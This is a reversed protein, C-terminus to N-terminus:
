DIHVTRVALLLPHRAAQFSALTHIGPGVYAFTFPFRTSVEHRVQYQRMLPLSVERDIAVYLMSSEMHRRSHAFRGLKGWLSEARFMAHTYLPGAPLPARLCSVDLQSCSRTLLCAFRCCTRVRGAQYASCDAPSVSLSLRQLKVLKGMNEIADVLHLLNHLKIDSENCSMALEVRCIAEAVRARMGALRDRCQVKCWLESCVNIISLMAAEVESPLSALRIAYAGFPGALLFMTATKAKKGPMTLRLLRGAIAGPLGTAITELAVRFDALYATDPGFVYVGRETDVEVVAHGRTRLGQLYKIIVDKIVGGITHMADYNLGRTPKFSLLEYIPCSLCGEEGVVGSWRKGGPPPQPIPEDPSNMGHWLEDDTRRPPQPPPPEPAPPPAPPPPPAAQTAHRRPRPPLPPPPPDPPPPEPAPPPAPPPPLAAQAAHRRPRPPQPQQQQEQQQHQQQQRPEYSLAHLANRLEANRDSLYCEHRPYITKNGLRVGALWCFICGHIAPSMKIGLHKQYGRYDSTIGLLKVRCWFPDGDRGDTVSVGFAELAAVEDKIMALVHNHDMPQAPNGARKVNSGMNTVVHCYGFQHRKEPDGAVQMPGVPCYATSLQLLTM